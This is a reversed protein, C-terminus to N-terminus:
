IEGNTLLDALRAGRVIDMAATHDAETYEAVNSAWIILDSERFCALKAATPNAVVAAVVRAPLGAARLGDRHADVAEALRAADRLAQIRREANNFEGGVSAGDEAYARMMAVADALEAIATTPNLPAFLEQLTSLIKM